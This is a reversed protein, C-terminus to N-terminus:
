RERRVARLPARYQLLGDDARLDLVVAAGGAVDERARPDPRHALQEAVAPTGEVALQMSRAEAAASLRPPRICRRASRASRGSPRYRLPRRHEYEALSMRPPGHQEGWASRRNAKLPRTEVSAGWSGESEIGWWSAGQRRGSSGVAPSTTAPVHFRGRRRGLALVAVHEQGIGEYQVADGLRCVPRAQRRGGRPPRVAPYRSRHRGRVGVARSAVREPPAGLPGCGAV